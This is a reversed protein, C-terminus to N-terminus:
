VELAYNYYDIALEFNGQNYLTDANMIRSDFMGDEVTTDHTADVKKEYSNYRILAIVLLTLLTAIGILKFFHGWFSEKAGKKLQFPSHRDNEITNYGIRERRGFTKKKNRKRLFKQIGFGNFGM